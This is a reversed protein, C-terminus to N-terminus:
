SSVSSSLYWKRFLANDRGFGDLDLSFDFVLMVFYMQFTKFNSYLELMALNINGLRPAKTVCTVGGDDDNLM